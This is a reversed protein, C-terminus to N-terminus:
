QARRALENGLSDLSEFIRQADSYASLQEVLTMQPGIIARADALREDGKTRSIEYQQHARRWRSESDTREAIRVLRVLRNMERRAETTMARLERRQAESVRPGYTTAYASTLDVIQSRVDSAQSTVSSTAHTPSAIGMLVLVGALISTIIRGVPKPRPHRM